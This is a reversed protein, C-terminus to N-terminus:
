AQFCVLLCHMKIGHKERQLPSWLALPHQVLVNQFLESQSYYNCEWVTSYKAIIWVPLLLKRYLQYQPWM